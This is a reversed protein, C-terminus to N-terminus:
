RTAVLVPQGGGLMAEQRLAQKEAKSTGLSAHMAAAPCLVEHLFYRDGIRKFVLKGGQVDRGDYHSTTIVRFKGDLSKILLVGSSSKITYTDAPLVTGGVNFEFPVTARVASEQALAKGAAALTSLALLAIAFNRKM